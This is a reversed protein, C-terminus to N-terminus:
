GIKRLEDLIAENRIVLRHAQVRRNSELRELYNNSPQTGKTKNYLYNPDNYYQLRIVNYDFEDLLQQKTNDTM